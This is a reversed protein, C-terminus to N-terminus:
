VDNLTTYQPTLFIIFFIIFSETQNTDTPTQLVPKTFHLFINNQHPETHAPIFLYPYSDTSM